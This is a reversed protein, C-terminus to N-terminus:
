LGSQTGGESREGQFRQLIQLQAEPSLTDWDIGRREKLLKKIQELNRPGRGLWGGDQPVYGPEADAYTLFGFMMEATTPEGFRVEITPDPNHPNDASNDWTAIFEVETGAPILKPAEEPYNYSTQWDFDYRPVELLVEQTGDPYHAIYKASKGRLHMHPLLQLLLSDREFKTRTAYTYAPDGAPIVFDSKALPDVLVPHEPKYDAPYFKLAVKSQDWVGTGPGPEKHYHMSWRITDGPKLMTGFGENYVKPQNGPAIGGLPPAVIHHVVSSGPRFEVAKVWRPGPLVEETIKTVFNVYIDEVEDAVFYKDDTGMNIVLDVDGILWDSEPWERAPPADAADGEPAGSTAWAVLTQIEADALGRENVFVGHQAPSAHWPPMRKAEAEKAIGRAWPRTEDFTTFSMPAVMGGLNAGNPRHCDQCNRQLIPLVEKYFTPASPTTDTKSAKSAAALPTACVAVISAVLALKM